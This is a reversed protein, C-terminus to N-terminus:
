LLLKSFLVKKSLSNVLSDEVSKTPLDVVYFWFYKGVESLFLVSLILAGPIWAVSTKAGAPSSVIM